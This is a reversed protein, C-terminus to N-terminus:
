TLKRICDYSEITPLMGICHGAWSCGTQCTPSGGGSGGGCYDKPNNNVYVHGTNCTGSKWLPTTDVALNTAPSRIVGQNADPTLANECEVQAQGGDSADGTFIDIHKTGSNWDDICAACDDEMRLYKKLYPLYIVECVSYEATSSAFTVPDGYTGTGGANYNRGGCNHAVLISGPPDNDPSGYFTVKVNSTISCAAVSAASSGALLFSFITSPQM